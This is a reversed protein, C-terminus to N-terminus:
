WRIGYNGYRADNSHGAKIALWDEENPRSGVHDSAIQLYPEIDSVVSGELYARMFYQLGFFAIHDVTYNDGTESNLIGTDMKSGRPEFYSTCYAGGDYDKENDAATLKPKAAQEGQTSLEPAYCVPYQLRHSMKYSDTFLPLMGKALNATGGKRRRLRYRRTSMKPKGGRAMSRKKM